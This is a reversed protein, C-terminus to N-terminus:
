ILRDDLRGLCHRFLLLEPMLKLIARIESVWRERPLFRKEDLVEEDDGLMQALAAGVEDDVRTVDGQISRVARGVKLCCALEM